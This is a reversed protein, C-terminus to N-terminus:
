TSRGAAASLSRRPAEPTCGAPKYPRLRNTVHHRSM